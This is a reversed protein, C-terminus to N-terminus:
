GGALKRSRQGTEVDDQWSLVHFPDKDGGLAIVAESTARRGNDFKLTTLVRFSKSKPLTASAKAPGLAAAIATQDRPLSARQNLFDKLALPTMGPLAAVVEPPAILVDVNPSGNFVTVFPLAREVLAPPVGLVLSLENVHAFPSQRPSYTRGAAVYLAEEGNASNANPSSRWGVIREAAEGAVTQDAGLVEFLNSLMEKPASNLDIRAAESTFTVLVDANDLRFRFSGQAPRAKEGALLLQYTTLELGASVLAETKLGVDTVALAQASNSLYVSFITALASLAALIWLVAIIVFGRESSSTAARTRLNRRV